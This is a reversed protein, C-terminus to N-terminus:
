VPDISSKGTKHRALAGPTYNLIYEQVNKEWEHGFTPLGDFTERNDTQNFEMEYISVMMGTRVVGHTCHVLVPRNVPNKLLDLWQAIQNGTPPTEAPMSINVWAVGEARCARAEEQHLTERKPDHGASLDVVTKIGYHDIVKNLNDPSLLASRYLVGDEVVAFHEPATKHHYIGAGSIFLFAALLLGIRYKRRGFNIKFPSMEESGKRKTTLDKCTQGLFRKSITKKPAAQIKRSKSLTRKRFSPM